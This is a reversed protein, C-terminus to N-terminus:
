KGSEYVMYGDVYVQITEVGSSKTVTDIHVDGSELMEKFLEKFQEKDM